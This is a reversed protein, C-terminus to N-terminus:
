VGDSARPNEAALMERISLADDHRIGSLTTSANHTGATHVVLRALGLRRQLPGQGVDTHQIRSRAVFQHSRFLVGRRIELGREDARYFVHRHSIRPWYLFSFGLLSAVLLWVVALLVVVFFPPGALMVPLSLGVTVGMMIAGYAIAGAWLEVRLAEAPLASFPAPVEPEDAASDALESDAGDSDVPEGASLPDGSAELDESNM